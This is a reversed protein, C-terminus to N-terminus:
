YTGHFSISCRSSIVRLLLYAKEHVTDKTLFFDGSILISNETDQFLKLATRMEEETNRPPPNEFLDIASLTHKIKLVIDDPTDKHEMLERYAELAKKLEPFFLNVM